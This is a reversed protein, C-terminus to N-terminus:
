RNHQIIKNKRHDNIIEEIIYTPRNKVEELIVQIYKGIISIALMQIGGFFILATFIPISANVPNGKYFVIFLYFALFVFSVSVLSFGITTIVDLPVYSFGLIARQTDKLYDYISNKSKGFERKQREYGVKAVRFGVWARLGRFFRVKEPFSNMADIVKRDLLCFGGVNLPMDIRALKRVILYFSKRALKMIFKDNIKNRVGIVVDAGKEWEKIFKPIIEPPDQLDCDVFTMIDGIAQKMAAQATYEATFNRSMFLATVKKDKKAISYIINRSQDTSMNDAFIIEYDYKPIAKMMIILKQYARVINEEENYSPVFISIIQKRIM